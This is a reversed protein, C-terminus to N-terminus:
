AHRRRVVFGLGLAATVLASLAALGLATADLGTAPLASDAVTITAWAPLTVSGDSLSVCLKYEGASGAAPSGQLTFTPADGAPSVTDDLTVGAPLSPAGAGGPTIACDSDSMATFWGGTTWAFPSNGTASKTTYPSSSPPTTGVTLLIPDIEIQPTVTTIGTDFTPTGSVPDSCSVGAYGYVRYTMTDAFPNTSGTTAGAQLYNNESINQQYLPLGNLVTFECGSFAYTGSTSGNAIMTVTEGSRYTSPDVVYSTLAPNNAFAPTVSLSLELAAVVATGSLVLFRNKM